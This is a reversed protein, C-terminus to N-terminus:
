NDKIENKAELSSSLCPISSHIIIEEEEDEIELSSVCPTSSSDDSFNSSTYFSLPSYPSRTCSCYSQDTSTTSSASSHDLALGVLLDVFAGIIYGHNSKGNVKLYCSLLEELSEWDKLGHAEVMEEMSKKFDVYPDQSDMSLAISEKFALLEDGGGEAAEKAAKKNAEELISSTEGPKFFLRESRLGKIVTEICEGSIGSEDSASSLSVSESTSSNTFYSSENAPINDVVDLAGELYASNLTKFMNEARFSLTKPQQCYAPWPWSSNLSSYDTSTTNIKSLFPLKMKKGM